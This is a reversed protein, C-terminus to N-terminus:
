PKSPTAARKQLLSSFLKQESDPDACERCRLSPLHGHRLGRAWGETELPEPAQPTTDSSQLWELMSERLLRTQQHPLGYVVRLTTNGAMSANLLASRVQQELSRESASATSPTPLWFVLGSPFAFHTDTASPLEAPPAAHAPATWAQLRAIVEPAMGQEVGWAQWQLCQAAPQSSATGAVTAIPHSLSSALTNM